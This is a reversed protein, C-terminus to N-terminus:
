VSTEMREDEVFYVGETREHQRTGHQRGKVRSARIMQGMVGKLYLLMWFWSAKVFDPRM